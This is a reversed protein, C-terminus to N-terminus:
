KSLPINSLLKQKSKSGKPRGRKRKQPFQELALAERDAKLRNSYYGQWIQTHFNEKSTHIKCPSSWDFYETTGEINYREKPFPIHKGANKDEKQIQELITDTVDKSRYATTLAQFRVTKREHKWACFRRYGQSAIFLFIGTAFVYEIFTM